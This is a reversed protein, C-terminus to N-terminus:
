SKVESEDAAIWLQRFRSRVIVATICGLAVGAILALNLPPGLPGLTLKAYGLVFFVTAPLALHWRGGRLDLHLPLGTVALWAMTFVTLEELESGPHAGAVRILALGLLGMVSLLASITLLGRLLQLRQLVRVRDTAETEPENM